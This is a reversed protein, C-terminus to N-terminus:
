DEDGVILDALYAVESRSISDDIAAIAAILNVLLAAGEDDLMGRVTKVIDYAGESGAADRVLSIIQDQDLPKKIAKYLASILALEAKNLQGDAAAATSLVASIVVLGDHDPDVAKFTPYLEMFCNAAIQVKTEDDQNVLNQLREEFISQASM